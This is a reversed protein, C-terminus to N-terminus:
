KVEKCLLTKDHGLLYCMMLVVAHDWSTKSAHAIDASQLAMCSAPREPRLFGRNNM